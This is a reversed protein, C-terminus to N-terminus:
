TRENQKCLLIIIGFIIVKTSYKTRLYRTFSESITQPKSRRHIERRM